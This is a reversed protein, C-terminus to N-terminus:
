VSFEGSRFPQLIVFKINDTAIGYSKFIKDRTLEVIRSLNCESSIHAHMILKTRPGIVNCLTLMSDENSLHGHDSLIRMKLPYPRSSHMLIEPDHNSELVYIDADNIYPYLSQHVYGTDTIYVLRKEQEYIVFGISEAADHFTPIIDIRTTKFNINPYMISNNIRDIIIITNENVRKELLECLKVKDKNKYMSYIANYTGRTLFIKIHCEKLLMPLARIHDIHEHTILLAHVDALSLDSKNLNEEIQKKSIGADILINVGAAKVLTVNGDSGSSFVVIDM